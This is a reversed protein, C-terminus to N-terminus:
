FKFIFAAGLTAQVDKNILGNDDEFLDDDAIDIKFEPKFLIAGDAFSLDGTLTFATVSSDFGRIGDDDTFYEGRFGIGHQKSLAYRFYGAVGSWSEGDEAGVAANLGLYVKPSMDYGLVLDFLQRFDAVDGDPTITGEPGGIWNFAGSFRDTPSFSFSAGFTKADNNDRIDDWNNYVAVMLAYNDDFAYRARAGVHYFPGFNFLYSTSYNLNATADIVEYGIHTGFRGVEFSLKETAKVVLYANQVVDSSGGVSNGNVAEAGPGFNLDLVLDAQENSYALSLQTMSFAFENSQSDYLRFGNTNSQPDNFNAFINSHAHGSVSLNEYGNQANVVKTFTLSCLCVLLLSKPTIYKM